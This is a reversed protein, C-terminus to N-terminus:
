TAPKASASSARRAEREAAYADSFKAEVTRAHLPEGCHVCISASGVEGGCVTHILQVAPGVAPDPGYWRLGWARLALVVGHLDKGKATLRYEYRHPRTQYPRREVVGDDELRKLRLSLLHSSMGTQAQFADFRRTGLFLERVILLTWRDGLVALSRAVPCLSEGVEDWSM